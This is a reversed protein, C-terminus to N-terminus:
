GGDGGPVLADLAARIQQGDTVHPLTVSWIPGGIREYSMVTPGVPDPWGHVPALVRDDRANVVVGATWDDHEDYREWRWIGDADHHRTWDAPVQEDIMRVVIAAATAEWGDLRPWGGEECDRTAGPDAM